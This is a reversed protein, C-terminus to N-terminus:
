FIDELHPALFPNCKVLPYSKEIRALEEYLTPYAGNYKDNLVFYFEKVPSVKTNWYDYLGVFDTALKRLTNQEKTTVDEPAYVQYYRGFEKIFGDNKRDGFQGQPKVKAFNPNHYIMIESFFNEFDQGNRKYIQLQFLIRAIKIEDKTLLM